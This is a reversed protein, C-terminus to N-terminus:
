LAWMPLGTLQDLSDPKGGAFFDGTAKTTKGFHFSFYQASFAQWL